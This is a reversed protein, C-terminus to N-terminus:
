REDRLQRFAHIPFQTQPQELQRLLHSIIPNDAFHLTVQTGRFSLLSSGAGSRVMAFIEDAGEIGRDMRMLRDFTGPGLTADITNRISSLDGNLYADRMMRRGETEGFSEILIGQILFCTMTEYPYAVYSPEMGHARVLEQSFLETTGEHFWRVYGVSVQRGNDGIYYMNLGGNAEAAGHLLEHTILLYRDAKALVSSSVFVDGDKWDRGGLWNWIDGLWGTPYPSMGTPVFGSAKEFQWFWNSPKTRVRPNSELFCDRTTPGPSSHSTGEFFDDTLWTNIIQQGILNNESSIQGLSPRPQAKQRGMSASIERALDAPIKNPQQQERQSNPDERRRTGLDELPPMKSLEDLARPRRKQKEAM